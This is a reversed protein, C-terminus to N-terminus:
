HWLKGRLREISEKKLIRRTKSNKRERLGFFFFIQKLKIGRLGLGKCLRVNKPALVWIGNDANNKEFVFCNFV